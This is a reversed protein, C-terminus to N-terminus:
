SFPFYYSSLPIATCVPSSSYSVIVFPIPHLARASCPRTRCSRKDAATNLPHGHCFSGSRDCSLSVLVEAVSTAETSRHGFYSIFRVSVLFAFVTIRFALGSRTSGAYGRKAGKQSAHNELVRQCTVLLSSDLARSQWNSWSAIIRTAM